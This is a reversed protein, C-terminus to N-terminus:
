LRRKILNDRIMLFNKRFFDLEVYYDTTFKYIRSVAFYRMNCNRCATHMVFLHKNHLLCNKFISIKGCFPCKVHVEYRKGSKKIKSPIVYKEYKKKLRYVEKKLWEFEEDNMKETMNIINTHHMKNKIFDLKDRIIGRRICSEYMASGPYPHIFFLKVQGHCNKEWYNLTEKATEKTEALDGFIFNGEIPMKLEMCWKIVKDIQEPTIPKKMSKLVTSSYSEFGFGIIYCGSDKLIKLTEKDVAGVWLSCRWKLGGEVKESIKKIRKCFEKLREKNIAFLDDLLNFTNIHYKEIALEIEKIINDISRERYREPHWCFTCQFPCGRSGFITYMRPYDMAGYLADQCSMNDLIKEFEIEDLDPFSLKNLDKIPERKKTITVKGDKNRWCLGQVKEFNGNKEICKLLEIITIEGEGIVGYDFNLNKTMLEPESTIIQGGVIIKPHSSHTKSINIIKEIIAYELAMSGTCVVDYKKKDLARNLVGEVSGYFHNLNLIDLKYGAKKISSSVYGIGIPVAYVYNPEKSLNNYTYKPVVM